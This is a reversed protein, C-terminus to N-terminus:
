PIMKNTSDEPEPVNKPDDVLKPNYVLKTLMDRLIHICAQGTMKGDQNHQVYFGIGANDVIVMKHCKWDSIFKEKAVDEYKKTRDCDMYYFRRSSFVDKDGTYKNTSGFIFLNNLNEPDIRISSVSSNKQISELIESIRCLQQADYAGILLHIHKLTGSEDSEVIFDIPDNTVTMDFVGGLLISKQDRHLREICYGIEQFGREITYAM